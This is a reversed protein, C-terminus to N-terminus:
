INKHMKKLYKKSSSRERSSSSSSSSVCMFCQRFLSRKKTPSKHTVYAEICSEFVEAINVQTLASCEIYRFAKIQSKLEEGEKTTVINIREEEINMAENRLDMQTGVLVIPVDRLHERLEPVWKTKVNDMSDRRVLNFCLLVVDTEPYAMIRLNDWDEQGATDFLQLTFQQGRFSTKM